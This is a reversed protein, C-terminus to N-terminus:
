RVIGPAAPCKREAPDRIVAAGDGPFIRPRRARGEFRCGWRGRRQRSTTACTPCPRSAEQIKRAPDSVLDREYNDVLHQAGAYAEYRDLEDRTRDKIDNLTHQEAKPRNKGDANLVPDFVRAKLLDLLERQQSDM